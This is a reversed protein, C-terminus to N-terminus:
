NLSDVKDFLQKNTEFMTFDRFFVQYESIIKSFNSPQIYKHLPKDQDQKWDQILNFGCTLELFRLLQASSISANRTFKLDFVRNILFVVKTKNGIAVKELSTV